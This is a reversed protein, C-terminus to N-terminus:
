KGHTRSIKLQVSGTIRIQGVFYPCGAYTGHEKNHPKSRIERGAFPYIGGVSSSSCIIRLSLALLITSITISVM